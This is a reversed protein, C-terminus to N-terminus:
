ANAFRVNAIKLPKLEALEDYATAAKSLLRKKQKPKLLLDSVGTKDEGLAAIL